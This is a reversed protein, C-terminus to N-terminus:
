KALAGASSSRAAPRVSALVLWRCRGVSTSPNAPGGVPARVPHLAENLASRACTSASQIPERSATVVSIVNEAHSGLGGRTNILLRSRRSVSLRQDM